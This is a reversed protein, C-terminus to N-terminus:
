GLSFLLNGNLIVLVKRHWANKESFQSLRINAEHEGMAKIAKVKCKFKSGLRDKIAQFTNMARAESLSINYASDGSADTHGVIELESEPSSFGLLEESCLMGIADIGEDSLISDDHKFYSVYNIKYKSQLTQPLPPSQIVQNTIRPTIKGFAMGIEPGGLDIFQKVALKNYDKYDKPDLSKEIKIKEFTPSSTFDVTLTPKGAPYIHLFGASAPLDIISLKVSGLSGELLRLDAGSFDTAEFYYDSIAYGDIQDIGFWAKKEIKLGLKLAHFSINYEIKKNGNNWKKANPYKNYDTVNEISITGDFYEYILGYANYKLKVHYKYKEEPKNPNVEFMRFLSSFQGVIKRDSIDRFDELLRKVWDLLNMVERDMRPQFLTISLWLRTYYIELPEYIFPLHNTQLESDLKKILEYLRDEKFSDFSDGTIKYYNSIIEEVNKHQNQYILAYYNKYINQLPPNWYHMIALDKERGKERSNINEFGYIMNKSPTVKSSNILKFKTENDSYNVILVDANRKELTFKRIGKLKVTDELICEANQGQIKGFFPSVENGITSNNHIPIRGIVGFIFNGAQNIMINGGYIDNEELDSIYHGTMDLFPKDPNPESLKFRRRTGGEPLAQTFVYGNKKYVDEIILKMDDYFFPVKKEDFFSMKFDQFERDNLKDLLKTEKFYKIILLEEERAIFSQGQYNLRQIVNNINTDRSDVLAYELLERAIRESNEKSKKAKIIHSYAYGFNSYALCYIIVEPSKTKSLGYFIEIANILYDKWRYEVIEGKSIKEINIENQECLFDLVYYHTARNILELLHNSKSPIRRFEEILIRFDILFLYSAVKKKEDKIYSTNRQADESIGAKLLDEKPEQKVYIALSQKGISINVNRQKRASLVAVATGIALMRGNFNEIYIKVGRGTVHPNNKIKESDTIKKIEKLYSPPYYGDIIQIPTGIFARLEQLVAILEPDYRFYNWKYKGNEAQAFEDVTFNDSLKYNRDQIKYLINGSNSIDEYGEITQVPVIPFKKSVQKLGKEVQKLGESVAEGLDIFNESYYSSQVNDWGKASEDNPFVEGVWPTVEGQRELISREDKHNNM